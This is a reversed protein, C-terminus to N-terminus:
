KKKSLAESGFPGSARRLLTQKPIKIHKSNKDIPKFSSNTPQITSSDITYEEDEDEEPPSVIISHLPTGSRSDEEDSGVKGNPKDEELKRHTRCRNGFFYM